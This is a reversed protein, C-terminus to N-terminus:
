WGLASKMTDAYRQGFTVQSDHSFHLQWTTDSPDVVLGSASIVYCNPILSPLQNVLVNHGACSGSYLLEGALFPVDGLGLDAKLDSVLQQVKGPWSPDGNNSEGQHFLIGEIVGGAQQALRARDIIWYYKPGGVKMFTEIKEGSIACPILGITDNLPLSSILTKSFWDGPGIAGVGCEHLPPVAVAWQNTHRGTAACEDYGLVSIRSNQVKDSPQATPYGAMNSQGLLLFCHFKGYNSTQVAYEFFNVRCNGDLDKSDTAGCDTELWVDFFSSLDYLNVVGNADFDGYLERSLVVNGGDPVADFMVYRASNVMIIKRSIPLGNQTVSASAWYPPLPRRITIPYNFITNDLADTISLTITDGTNQTQIISANNREKIYKVVNGFTQVWFTDRHADLYAVAGTLASVSTPSYGGDGELGHTCYVQWGNTDAVSNFNTIFGAETNVGGTGTFAAKINYFDAPTNSEPTSDCGRGAIYYQAVCPKDIPVVCNPYAITVCQNGPIYSNITNQSNVLYPTIISCSQDLNEHNPCHSGVEHGNAAAAQLTPWNPEWNTVPYSTLKFGYTDFLPLVITYFGGLNGDDFTFSIAAKRFGSWNAAEYLSGFGAIQTVTVTQPTVGSASVTVTATRLSSSTNAQATVTVTGNNSDSTPSVTCWTQNSSVTWDTNSNVDFTANSDALAALRISIPSVSLTPCTVFTGFDIYGSSCNLWESNPSCSNIAQEAQLTNGDVIIYDVQVSRGSAYNLFVVRCNGCLDTSATYDAM